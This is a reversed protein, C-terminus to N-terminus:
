SVADRRDVILCSALLTLLVEGEDITAYPISVSGM